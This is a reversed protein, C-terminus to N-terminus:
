GQRTRLLAALRETLLELRRAVADWVADPLGIPDAIDGDPRRKVLESRDRGASLQAVWQRTPIPESPAAASTLSAEARLVFDHYTFTKSLLAPRVALINRVHQQTMTLILDAEGLMTEDIQRSRHARLDLGRAAMVRLGEPPMVGGGALMGASSVSLRTIDRNLAQVLLHEAM